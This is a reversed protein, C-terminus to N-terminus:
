KSKREKIEGSIWEYVGVVFFVVSYFLATDHHRIFAQSAASLGLSILGLIKDYMNYGRFVCNGVYVIQYWKRNDASLIEGM